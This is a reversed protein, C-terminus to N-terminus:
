GPKRAFLYARRSPYEVGPYPDREIVEIDGFGARSLESTVASPQFFAFDLSVPKGLFEDVHVAGDGVHFALLLGSGPQLVRHAEALFARIEQPSLHVIAYFAVMGALSLDAAALALMDGTEFPVDPHRRRAEAALQPSLDVGRVPVGLSHLFATTQGPGCGVDLVRGRGAVTESFRRLVERDLPKHSLEDAFREAYEAAVADYCARVHAVPDGPTDSM